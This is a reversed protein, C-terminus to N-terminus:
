KPSKNVEIKIQSVLDRLTIDSGAVKGNEIVIRGQWGGIVGTTGDDNIELFVLVREGTQFGPMDESLQTIGGAEGGAVKIVINKGSAGKIAEETAISVFTYIRSHDTNWQSKKETVSGVVILDAKAVLEELSLKVLLASTIPTGQPNPKPEACAFLLLSAVVLIIAAIRWM